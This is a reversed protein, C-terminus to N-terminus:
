GTDWSRRHDNVRRGLDTSPWAAYRASALCDPMRCQGRRAHEVFMAATMAVVFVRPAWLGAATWDRTERDRRQRAAVKDPEPGVFVHTGDPHRVGVAYIRNDASSAPAALCDDNERISPTGPRRHTDSREGLGLAGVAIPEQGAMAEDSGDVILLPHALHYLSLNLFNAM